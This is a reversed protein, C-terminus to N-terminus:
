EMGVLVQPGWSDYENEGERKGEREMGDGGVGRRRRGPEGVPRNRAREARRGGRGCPGCRRRTTGGGEGCRGALRAEEMGRRPAGAQAARSRRLPRRRAHLDALPSARRRGGAKTGISPPDSTLLMAAPPRGRGSGKELDPPRRPPPPARCLLSTSSSHRRASQKGEVGEVAWDVASRSSGHWISGATARNLEM